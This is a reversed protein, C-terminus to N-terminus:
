FTIYHQYDTKLGAAFLHSDNSMQLVRPVVFEGAPFEIATVGSHGMRYHNSYLPYPIDLLCSMFGAGFGEHAFLAVRDQNPREAIYGHNEHDHRYGLTLLLEDTHRQIRKIGEEYPALRPHRYWEMDLQRVEQSAMLKIYEPLTWLWRRNGEPMLVGLGEAAWKEHCWDLVEIELSLAKATPKATEMARISSSSFIREPKCIMMRKVLADAQEKGHETLSDPNYIPDGHRVFFLLM